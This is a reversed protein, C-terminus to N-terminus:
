KTHEKKKTYKLMEIVSKHVCIIKSNYKLQICFKQYICFQLLVLIECLASDKFVTAVNDRM